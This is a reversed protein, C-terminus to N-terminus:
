WVGPILRRTRDCYDRYEDGLREALAEEEARIRPQFGVLPVIVAIALAAANGFTVVVGLLTLWSGSYAPHRVYRYPGTTIVQHGDQIAVVLRFFRGLTRVAWLRVGLGSWIMACGMATSLVPSWPFQAAPVRVTVVVGAVLTILFAMIIKQASNRDATQMRRIGARLDRVLLAWEFGSWALMSIWVALATGLSRLAAPVTM